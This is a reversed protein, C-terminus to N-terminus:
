ATSSPPSASTRSASSRSRGSSSRNPCPGITDVPGCARRRDPRSRAGPRRDGHALARARADALAADAAAVLGDITESLRRRALAARLGCDEYAQEFRAVPVDELFFEGGIRMALDRPHQPYVATSVVDYFPALGVAGDRYLFSVNKGRADSASLRVPTRRTRGFSWPEPTPMGTMGSSSYAPNMPARVSSRSPASSLGAHAALRLCLAENEALEPFLLQGQHDRATAPPKLIHTTPHGNLPLGLPGDAGRALGLKPQVGAL